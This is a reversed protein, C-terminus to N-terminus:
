RAPRLRAAPPGSGARGSGLRFVEVRFGAEPISLDTEKMVGPAEDLRAVIARDPRVENEYSATAIPSGPTALAAIVRRGSLSQVRGEIEDAGAGPALWPLREPIRRRDFRPGTLEAQWALLAPSLPYSYGLLVARDGPRDAQELVRDIVAALGPPSQYAEHGARIRDIPPRGLVTWALLGALGLARAPAAIRGAGAPLLDLLHVATTGARLWILPATTFLFRSGPYRHLGFVDARSGAYTLAIALFDILFALYLLRQPDRSSEQEAALTAIAGPGVGRPGKLPPVFALALVLWGVPPAPSYDNAFARPYFLLSQLSWPSEATSRNWFLGILERVRNPYPILLWLGIPLAVSLGWVRARAPLSEWWGRLRGRRRRLALLGWVVWLLYFGYAPNGPSRVSVRQGFLQFAGGGTVAIWALLGAYVIMVFPFPKLWAARAAGLARDIWAARAAGPLALWEHLLLPAIWMLGYNYKCFFLATTCWGAAALRGPRAPDAAAHAYALLSLVLLFAGPMELMCLTGFQAFAPSALALAAALGGIWAGRVPDLRWGAVVIAIVTLGYLVASLEDATAYRNGLVLFMPALMLGHVFPWAVQRNIISLFKLPDAHRIAQALDLGILGHGAPDWIPFGPSSAALRWLAFAELAAIACLALSAARAARDLWRPILPSM